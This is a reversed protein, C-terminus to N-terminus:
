TTAHAESLLRARLVLAAVVTLIETILAPLIATTFGDVAISLVRGAAIPATLIALALLWHPADPRKLSGLVAFACLAVFLGGMDGRANSYASVSGLGTSTQGAAVDPTLLWSAAMLATILGFLAIFIRLALTM